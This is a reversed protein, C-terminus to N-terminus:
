KIDGKELMSIVGTSVLEPLVEDVSLSQVITWKHKMMAARHNEELLNRRYMFKERVDEMLSDKKIKEMLSGLNLGSTISDDSLLNFLNKYVNLDSVGVRHVIDLLREAKLGDTLEARILDRENPTVLGQSYLHPLISPVSLRSVLRSHNNLFGYKLDAGEM